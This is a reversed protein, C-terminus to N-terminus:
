RCAHAGIDVDGEPVRRAAVVGGRVQQMGRQAVHEARVDFLGAREDRGIPQAEVENGEVRDREDSSARMSRM